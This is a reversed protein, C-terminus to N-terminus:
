EEGDQYPFVDLFLTDSVSAIDYPVVFSELLKELNEQARKTDSAQVLYYQNSKKMKGSVEDADIFSVKVKYWKDDNEDDSPVVESINSKKLSGIYYDGSVISEMEKIIRAEAESYSMADLLYLESVKRERGDENIKIYKAKAEFWTATM